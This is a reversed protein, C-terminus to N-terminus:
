FIRVVAPGKAVGGYLSVGEPQPGHYEPTLGKEVLSSAVDAPVPGLLDQQGKRGQVAVHM